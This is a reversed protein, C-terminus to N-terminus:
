EEIDFIRQSLRLSGIRNPDGTVLRGNLIADKGSFDGDLIQVHVVYMDTEFTFFRELKVCQLRTGKTLLHLDQLNAYKGHGSEYDEVSIRELAGNTGTARMASLTIGVGDLLVDQRLRLVKDKSYQGWWAPDSSVDARRSVCGTLGFFALAALIILVRPITLQM